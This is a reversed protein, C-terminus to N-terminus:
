AAAEIRRIASRVFDASIFFSAPFLLLYKLSFRYRLSRLVSRRGAAFDAIAMQHLGLYALKAGLLAPSIRALDLGFEKVYQAMALTTHELQGMRVDIDCLRPQGHQRYKRCVVKSSYWAKHERHMRLWLLSEHAKLREDFRYKAITAARFAMWFDGKIRGGLYLEFPLVGDAMPMSGSVQKTEVDLCNFWLIDVDKRDPQEFENAITELADPELEDDDDLITVIEGRAMDFGRNRARLVGGNQPMRVYQVRPDKIQQVYEQTRDPSADDLIILEVNEYTGSLVSEVSRALLDCRNYTTLLVTILPKNMHAM